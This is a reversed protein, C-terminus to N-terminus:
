ENKEFELKKGLVKARDSVALLVKMKDFNNEINYIEEFLERSLIVSENIKTLDEIYM